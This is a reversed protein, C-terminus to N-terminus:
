SQFPQCRFPLHYSRTDIALLVVHAGLQPSRRLPMKSKQVPPQPEDKVDRASKMLRVPRMQIDGIWMDM